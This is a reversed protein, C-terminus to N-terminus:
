IKELYELSKKVKEVGTLEILVSVGKMRETLKQFQKWDVKGEGPVQHLDDCLDNDNIHMHATYTEVASIWQEVSSGSIVAHAYDLCFKFNNCDKMRELLPLLFEPSNEQTNELYIELEPYEACLERFFKEQRDAWNSLYIASTVGRVLGSHFVVGKISLRRAIEMSQRMRKQSYAAIYSDDSSVVVDLFAGHLTDRSRDRELACYGEIRRSVEEEQEYIKPLYFDNYEFGAQYKEALKAFVERQEFNPIISWNRKM